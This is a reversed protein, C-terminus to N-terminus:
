EGEQTTTVPSEFALLEILREAESKTIESISDVDRGLGKNVFAKREEPTAFQAKLSATLITLHTPQTVTQTQAREVKAMEERSPRKGKTAYGANALARGIASTECNELASAFNVRKPNSDVREEAHGTAWPEAFSEATSSTRFLVARVIFQGDQAHLLSTEIRGNPYDAWFRALREEVPEYENLNFGM